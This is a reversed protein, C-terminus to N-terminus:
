AASRRAKAMKIYHLSQALVFLVDLAWEVVFLTVILMLVSGWNILGWRLTILAFLFGMVGGEAPPYGALCIAADIIYAAVQARKAWRLGLTPFNNYWRKLSKIPAPDEEEIRYEANGDRQYEDIIVRSLTRDYKLLKPYVEFTQLLAWLILGFIVGFGMAMFTQVSAIAEADMGLWTGVGAILGLLVAVAGCFGRGELWDWRTLLFYAVGSVAAFVVCGVMIPTIAAGSVGLPVGGLSRWAFNAAAIYPALNVAAFGITAVTTLVFLIWTTSEGWRVRSLRDRVRSRSGSGPQRRAARRKTKRRPPDTPNAAESFADEEWVDEFAADFADPRATM